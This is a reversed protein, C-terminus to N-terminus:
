LIRVIGSEFREITYAQSWEMASKAMTHLNGFELVEEIQSVAAELDPAILIGRKGEDLMWPLCSVKTSIPICGFFMAEALAKPWGESKSTLISFHSNSLKSKVSEADQYGHMFIFHELKNRIIYDKLELRLAGDGVIDLVVKQGNDY